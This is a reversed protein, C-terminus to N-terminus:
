HQTIVGVLGRDSTIVLFGVKKVDRKDLLTGKVNSINAAALHAVVDSLRQAYM